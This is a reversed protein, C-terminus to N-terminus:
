DGPHQSKFHHLAGLLNADNSYKCVSIVPLRLPILASKWRRDVATKIYDMLLPERSIGGGILVCDLDLMVQLNYIQFALRDCFLELGAEVDKRGERILKFAALGDVDELGSTSQIAAKLGQIGNLTAFMSSPDDPHHVDSYIFSLNGASYSAGSFLKHDIIIAGGIGTGLVMVAGNRYDQMNGYGVEAEAACFGDNMVSVPKCLREELEKVIPINREQLMASGFVFGSDHNIMGPMSIAVGHIDGEVSHLIDEIQRYYNEKEDHPHSVTKNQQTLVLEDDCVAYKIASGGADIVLYQM